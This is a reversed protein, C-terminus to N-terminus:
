KLVRRRSSALSETGATESCARLPFPARPPETGGADGLADAGDSKVSSSAKRSLLCLERLGPVEAARRAPLSSCGRSGGAGGRGDGHGRARRQQQQPCERKWGSVPLKQRAAQRTDRSAGLQWERAGPALCPDSTEWCRSAPGAGRRPWGPERLAEPGAEAPLARAGPQVHRPHASSTGQKENM